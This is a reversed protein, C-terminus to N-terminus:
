WKLFGRRRWDELWLLVENRGIERVETGDRMTASEKRAKSIDLTALGMAEEGGKESGEMERAAQRFFPLIKAAPLSEEIDHDESQISGSEELRGLWESYLVLPIRLASSVTDALVSWPAPRPHVLHVFPSNSDRLEILVRSAIDLPIWSVIKQRCFRM